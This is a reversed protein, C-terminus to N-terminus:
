RRKRPLLPKIQKEADAMAQAATKKRHLAQTIEAQMIQSVRNYKAGTEASPRVVGVAYNKGLVELVSGKLAADGYAALRTPAKNFRTASQIQASYSTFYKILKAAAEKHKSHANMSLLYGGITTSHGEPHGAFYPNRTIKYKDKVPSDDASLPTVVFDQVTM